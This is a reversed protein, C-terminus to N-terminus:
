LQCADGLGIRRVRQPMGKGRLEEIGSGGQFDDLLQHTVTGKVDREAIRLQIVPGFARLVVLGHRLYLLALAKLPPLAHIVDTLSSYVPKTQVQLAPLERRM